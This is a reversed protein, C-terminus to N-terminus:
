VTDEACGCFRYIDLPQSRGKITQSTMLEFPYRDTVQDVVSASALIENVTAIQSLHAAVNVSDGIVTFEMRSASGINGSLVIGSNVGIGLEIPVIRSRANMKQMAIQIECAATVARQAHDPQFSPIGFVGLVADGIFKDVYGGVRLIIQTQIELCRNLTEVVHEPPHSETFATFGRIDSFIVTAVKRQSKLWKRQPDQLILDLVQPGVYKGFTEQMLSKHGLERGMRNFAKALNGIEDQRRINIRADFNGEVMQQTVDVMQDIPKAVRRGFFTSVAVGLGIVGLAIVGLTATENRITQNIAALGMGVHVTGLLQNNFRVDRTLNIHMAGKADRANYYLVSGKRVVKGLPKMQPLPIGIQNLDSHAMVNDQNDAVMAYAVWGKGTAESILKNLNPLDKQIILVRSHSEIHNLTVMGMDVAQYYLLSHQHRIITAYLAGIVLLMLGSVTMSLKVWLPWKSPKLSKLRDKWTSPPSALDELRDMKLGQHQNLTSRIEEAEAVGQDVIVQGLPPAAGFHSIRDRQENLAGSLQDRTIVGQQVLLQGALLSKQSRKKQM